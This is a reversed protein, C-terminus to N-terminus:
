KPPATLTQRNHHLFDLCAKAFSLAANYVMDPDAPFPAPGPVQKKKIEEPVMAKDGEIKYGEFEFRHIGQLPLPTTLVLSGDTGKVKVSGTIRAEKSQHIRTVTARKREYVPAWVTDRNKTVIMNSDVVVQQEYEKTSTSMHQPSIDIAMIEVEATLVHIAQSPAKGALLVKTWHNELKHWPQQEFAQMVQPPLPLDAPTRVNVVLWTTGMIKAKEKLSHADKYNPEEETLETLLRYAERANHVSPASLLQTAESYLYNLYANRAQQLEETVNYFTLSANQNGIKLPLVTQVLRQRQDIQKYLAYIERINEKSPYEKLWKIREIDRKQAENFARELNAAARTNTPNQRLKNVCRIIARDYKGRAILSELSCGTILEVGLAILVLALILKKLPSM